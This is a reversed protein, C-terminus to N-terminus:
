SVFDTLSGIKGIKQKETSVVLVQLVFASPIM